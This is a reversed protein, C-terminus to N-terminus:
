YNYTFICPYKGIKEGWFFKGMLGKTLKGVWVRLNKREPKKIKRNNGGINSKYIKKLKYLNNFKEFTFSEIYIDLFYEWSIALVLNAMKNPYPLEIFYTHTLFIISLSFSYM